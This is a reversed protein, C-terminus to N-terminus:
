EKELYEKPTMRIYSRRGCSECSVVREQCDEDSPFNQVSLYRHGCVPCAVKLTSDALKHTTQFWAQRQAYTDDTMADDGCQHFFADDATHLV